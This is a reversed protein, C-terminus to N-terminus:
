SVGNIKKMEELLRAHFTASGQLFAPTFYPQAGMKSTGYEVFPAYDAPERGQIFEGPSGYGVQVSTSDIVEVGGSRKLSSTDVPVFGQSLDYIDKATALLAKSGAEPTAGAIAKLNSQLRAM